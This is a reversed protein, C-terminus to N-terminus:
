VGRLTILSRPSKVRNNTTRSAIPSAKKFVRGKDAAVFEKAVKKSPGGKRAKMGHAIAEMLNHQATSKSPM